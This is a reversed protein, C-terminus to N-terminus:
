GRALEVLLHAHFDDLFGHLAHHGGHRHLAVPLREPQQVAAGGQGDALGHAGPGGDDVGARQALRRHAHVDGGRVVLGGAFPRIVMVAVGMWRPPVSVVWSTSIVLSAPWRSQVSRIM